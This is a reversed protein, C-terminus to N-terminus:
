LTEHSKAVIENIRKQWEETLASVVECTGETEEAKSAMSRETKTFPKRIYALYEINGEPGRIPSYDLDLIEFGIEEIATLM